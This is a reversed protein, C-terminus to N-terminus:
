GKIIELLKQHLVPNAILIGEDTPTWNEGELNTVLNGAERNIVVGAAMDEPELSTAAYALTVGSATLCIPVSACNTGLTCNVGARTLKEIIPPMRETHHKGSDVSMSVKGLDAVDSAQVPQGNLFAGSGNVAHYFEGRRAANVVGLVPHNLRFLAICFAVHDSFNTILNYTGDVGDVYWTYESRQDRFDSEESHINHDPFYDIIAERALRDNLDDLTTKFHSPSTWIPDNRRGYFQTINWGAMTAIKVALDVESLRTQGM